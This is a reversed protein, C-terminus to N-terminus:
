VRNARGMAGPGRVGSHPRPLRWRRGCQNAAGRRRPVQPRPLLTCPLLAAIHARLLGPLPLAPRGRAPAMARLLLHVADVVLLLVLLLVPLGALSARVLPGDLRTEGAGVAAATGCVRHRCARGKPAAWQALTADWQAAAAAAAAAGADASAAACSATAAAAAAACRGAAASAATRAAPPGRHQVVGRDLQVRAPADAGLEAPGVVRDLLAAGAHVARALQRRLHTSIRPRAHTRRMAAAHLCAHLRREAQSWRTLLRRGAFPKSCPQFGTQVNGHSLSRSTSASIFSMGTRRARM